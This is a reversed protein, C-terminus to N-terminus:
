VRDYFVRGAFAIETHGTRLLHEIINGLRGLRTTATLERGCDCRARYDCYDFSM